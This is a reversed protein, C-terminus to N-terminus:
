SIWTDKLSILYWTDDHKELYVEVGRGCTPTSVIGFYVTANTNNDNFEIINFYLVAIGYDNEKHFNDIESKTLSLIYGEFGNYEQHEIKNESNNDKIITIEANVLILQLYYKDFDDNYYYYYYNPYYISNKSFLNWFILQRIASIDNQKTEGILPNHDKNDITGDQDTDIDSQNTMLIQELVDPLQDMDTDNLYLEENITIIKINNGLSSDLKDKLDIHIIIIKNEKMSFLYSYENFFGLNIDTLIMESWNELDNSKCYWLDNFRFVGSKFFCYYTKEKNQIVKGDNGELPYNLIQQWNECDSSYILYNNTSILYNNDKDLTLSTIFDDLDLQYIFNEFKWNIFDPSTAKFLKSSRSYIILYHKTLNQIICFKDINTGESFSIKIPESWQFTEQLTSYYIESNSIWLLSITGNLDEFIQLNKIENDWEIYTPETWKQLNNSKTIFIKSNNDYDSKGTWSLWYKGNKDQLMIPNNNYITDPNMIIANNKKIVKENSMLNEVLIPTTVNNKKGGKDIVTLTIQYIGANDFVHTIKSGYGIQKDEISWTYNVINQDLDKSNSGNFVVDEGAFIYQNTQVVAKPINNELVTVMCYDKNKQGNADIITLTVNYTGKLNYKHNTNQGYSFIGDGFDWSYNIIEGNPDISLSGNFYIAEGEYITQDIGAEAKPKQDKSSERENGICGTIFSILIIVILVKIIKKYKRKKSIM